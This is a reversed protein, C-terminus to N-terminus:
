SARELFAPMSSNASAASSVRRPRPVKTQTSDHRQLEYDAEVQKLEEQADRLQTRLLLVGHSEPFDEGDVTLYLRPFVVLAVPGLRPGAKHDLIKTEIKDQTIRLEQWPWDSYLEEDFRAEFSHEQRCIQQWIVHANETLAVLHEHFEDEFRPALLGSVFAMILQCAKQIRSAEAEAQEEKLM